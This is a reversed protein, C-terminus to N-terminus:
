SEPPHKSNQFILRIQQVSNTRYQAEWEAEVSMFSDGAVVSWKGFVFRTIINVKVAMDRYFNMKM